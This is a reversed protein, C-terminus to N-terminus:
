VECCESVINKKNRGQQEPVSKCKQLENLNSSTETLIHLSSIAIDKGLHDSSPIVIM